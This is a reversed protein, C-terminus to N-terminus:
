SRSQRPHFQRSSRVRDLARNSRSLLQILLVTKLGSRHDVVTMRLNVAASFWGIFLFWDLYCANQRAGDSTFGPIPVISTGARTSAV